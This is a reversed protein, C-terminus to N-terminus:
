TRSSPTGTSPGPGSSQAPGRNGAETEGRQGETAENEGRQGETAENETAREAARETSEAETLIWHDTIALVDFDAAEYHGILEDPEMEGDSRTTHAHLACRLWTGARVFPDAAAAM